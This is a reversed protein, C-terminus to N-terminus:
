QFCVMKESVFIVSLIYKLLSKIKKWRIYENNFFLNKSTMFFVYKVVDM